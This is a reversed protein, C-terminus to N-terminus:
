GGQEAAEGARPRIGSLLIWSDWLKPPPFVDQLRLSRQLVFSVFLLQLFPFLYIVATYRVRGKYNRM